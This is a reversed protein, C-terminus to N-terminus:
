QKITKVYESYGLYCPPNPDGDCCAFSITITVYENINITECSENSTVPVFLRGFETTLEYGKYKKLLATKLNGNLDSLNHMLITNKEPVMKECTLITTDIQKEVPGACGAYVSTYPVYLLLILVTLKNM